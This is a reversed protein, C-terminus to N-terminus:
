EQCVFEAWKGEEIELVDFEVTFMAPGQKLSFKMAPQGVMCVSSVQYQALDTEKITSLGRLLLAFFELNVQFPGKGRRLSLSQTGPTGTVTTVTANDMLLAYTKPSLDVVDFSVKMTEETRWKKRPTIGGASVFQGHTQGHTVTVGAESYSKTGSKGVKTWSSAFSAEVTSISPFATGVPAVWATFPAAIVEAIEAPM